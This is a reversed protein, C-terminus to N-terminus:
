LGVNPYSQDFQDLTPDYPGLLGVNPINLGKSGLTPDQTALHALTPSMILWFALTPPTPGELNSTLEWSDKWTMKAVLMPIGVNRSRRVIFYAQEVSLLSQGVKPSVIPGLHGINGTKLKCYYVHFCVQEIINCSAQHTGTCRLIPANCEQLCFGKHEYSQIWGHNM